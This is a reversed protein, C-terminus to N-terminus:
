SQNLNPFRRTRWIIGAADTVLVLFLGTIFLTVGAAALTLPLVVNPSSTSAWIATAFVATIQTVDGLSRRVGRFRNWMFRGLTVPRYFGLGLSRTQHYSVSKLTSALIISTVLLAIIIWGSWNAPLTLSFIDM